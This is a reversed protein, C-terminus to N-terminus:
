CNEFYFEILLTATYSVKRITTLCLTESTQKLSLDVEVCMLSM